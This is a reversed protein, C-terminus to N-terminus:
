LNVMKNCIILDYGVLDIYWKVCCSGTIYTCLWKRFHMCINLILFYIVLIVGIIIVSQLFVYMDISDQKWCSSTNIKLIFSVSINKQWYEMHNNRYITNMQLLDHVWGMHTPFRCHLHDIIYLQVLNPFPHPKFLSIPRPKIIIARIILYHHLTSIWMYINWHSLMCSVNWSIM